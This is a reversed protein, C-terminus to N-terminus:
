TVVGSLFSFTLRSSNNRHYRCCSMLIKLVGTNVVLILSPSPEGLGNQGNQLRWKLDQSSETPRSRSTGLNM